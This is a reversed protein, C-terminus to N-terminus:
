QWPYQRKLHPLFTLIMTNFLLVDFFSYDCDIAGKKNGYILTMLGQRGIIFTKLLIKILQM